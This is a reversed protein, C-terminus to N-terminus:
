PITKERGNEDKELKILYDVGKGRLPPLRNAEKKSFLLLFNKCWNPLITRPDVDKKPALAKDIDQLSVAFVNTRLAKRTLTAFV